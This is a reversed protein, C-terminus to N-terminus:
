IQRYIRFSVAVAGEEEKIVLNFLQFIEGKCENEGQWVLENQLDIWLSLQPIM